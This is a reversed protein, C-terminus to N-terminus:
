KSKGTRRAKLLGINRGPPAHRPPTKPKGVHRGRGSGFPHDVANMAVGSTKPYLKSRAKMAHHKKGAKVFPKEKRGGGAVVGVTARCKPHLSRKKKSPLQIIIKDPFKATIRAFSGASRCFASKGPQSEINYISIGEPINKLSLTNGIKIEASEGSKVVDGVKIGQPAPILVTEDGYETKLLPASHGSCNIIDKVVGESEKSDVKKNKIIGKNKHGHHKYTHSGKGRRQTIILKGM